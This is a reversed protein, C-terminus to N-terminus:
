KLEALAIGLWALCADLYVPHGESKMFRPATGALLARRIMALRPYENEVPLGLRRRAAAIEKVPKHAKLRDARAWLQRELYVADEVWHGAHVEALDILCVPGHEINERSMANALHLDGHLWQTTRQEWESALPALHQRLNKIAAAWETRKPINNVRANEGAEALLIDWDEIRPPQDIEFMAAAAHFKACAEAMRPVHDDHWHMGLPGHELREIVIWALDYGALTQDSAYLRPVVADPESTQLRRSWLLERQVVPLKVIVPRPAPEDDLRWLSAGTAAGGRQWDAKFWTIEGLRGDCAQALVPALSAALSRADGRATNVGESVLV